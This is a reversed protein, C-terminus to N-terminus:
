IQHFVVGFAEQVETESVLPLEDPSIRGTHIKRHCNACVRTCKLLEKMQAIGYLHAINGSKTEPDVHHFDICEPANEDCICCGKEKLKWLNKRNRRKKIGKNKAARNKCTNCRWERGYKCTKNAVFSKLPKEVNCKKCVRTEM